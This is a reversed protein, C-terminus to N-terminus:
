KPPLRPLRLSFTASGVVADNIVVQAVYTGVGVSIASLNYVYGCNSIRFSLGTDAPQVYVSENVAATVEDATRFLRISAAPLQCTVVGNVTLTFRIPVVGRKVNFVSSGNTDIPPQITTATLQSFLLVGGPVLGGSGAAVFIDIFAGTMGDYRFVAGGNLLGDLYLNGDPGFAISAAGSVGGSGAAVFTGLFTGSLSFRDVRSSQYGVVYMNGDAGFALSVPSGLGNGNSAVYDIFAGSSGAYKVVHLQDAVYLNGDPGFSVVQVSGGASAGGAFIDIFAGTTGHYRKVDNIPASDGVYLNGDPGFTLGTPASLGGSGTPVFVDIFDGSVGDYRLISQTSSSTVYLNGDPGFTMGTPSSLGGSGTTVFAGAFAGTTGDYGLISNSAGGSTIYLSQALSPQAAVPLLALLIGVAVSSTRPCRALRILSRMEAGGFRSRTDTGNEPSSAGLMDILIASGCCNM